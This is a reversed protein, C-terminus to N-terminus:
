GTLRSRTNAAPAWWFETRLVSDVAEEEDKTENSRNGELALGHALIALDRDPLAQHSFEDPGALANQAGTGSGDHVEVGGFAKEVTISYGDGSMVWADTRERVTDSAGPYFHAMDSGAAEGNVRLVPFDQVWYEWRGAQYACEDPWGSFTDTYRTDFMEAVDPGGGGYATVQNYRVLRQLWGSGGLRGYVRTGWFREKESSGVLEATNNKGGKAVSHVQEFSVATFVAGSPVTISAQTTTGSYQEDGSTGYL